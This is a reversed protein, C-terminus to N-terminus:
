AEVPTVMTAAYGHARGFTEIEETMDIRASRTYLGTLGDRRLRDVAERRQRENVMAIFGISSVAIFLGGTFLAGKQPLSDAAPTVSSADGSLALMARTAFAVVLLAMAFGSLWALPSAQKRTNQHIM